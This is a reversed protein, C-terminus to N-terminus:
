QVRHFSHADGRHLHMDGVGVRSLIEAFYGVDPGGTHFVDPAVTKLAIQFGEAEQGSFFLFFLPLIEQRKKMAFICYDTADIIYEIDVGVEKTKELMKTKGRYYGYLEVIDARNSLHVTYAKRVEAIVNEATIESADTTIM